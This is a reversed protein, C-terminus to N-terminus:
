RARLADMLAKYPHIGDRHADALLARVSGDLVEQATRRRPPATIM